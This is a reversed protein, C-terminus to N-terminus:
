VPNEYVDAHNLEGFPKYTQNRAIKEIAMIDYGYCKSEKHDLAILGPCDGPCKKDKDNCKTVNTIVYKRFPMPCEFRVGSDKTPVVTDHVQLKM